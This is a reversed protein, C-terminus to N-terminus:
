PQAELAARDAAILLRGIWEIAQPVVANGLARLRDVRGPVGHAVRGVPPEVAWWNCQAIPGAYEWEPKSQSLGAGGPNPADVASGGNEPEVGRRKGSQGTRGNWGGREADAVYRAGGDAGSAGIWGTAEIRGATEWDTVNGAPEGQGRESREAHALVFVRERIHPADFACAPVVITGTAYDLGDLDSLVQDLITTRIGPVNEGVVWRPRLEAIIRRYEPWLDRDDAAGKRKGAISHPQCPYGGCVVDVASLNWAGCERIDGYRNVEPWHKSLVRQCFPNIEVQWECVMGAREFGLDFGGIGAFLSGFTLTM